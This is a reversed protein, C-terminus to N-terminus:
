KVTVSVQGWRKEIEELGKNIRSPFRKAYHFFKKKNLGSLNLEEWDLSAKGLSVLYLQDLLAKEPEAFNLGDETKYGFYLKPKIQSYVVETNGLVIKKSKKTTAFTLSYPLQNLIGGRGLVTVFSLYSPYYIQNAIKEIEWNTGKLVYIGRSLRILIGEDVVRKIFTNFGKKESPFIKKLDKITFFGKPFNELTKIVELKKM